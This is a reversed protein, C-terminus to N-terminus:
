SKHETRKVFIILTELSEPCGVYTGKTKHNAATFQHFQIVTLRRYIFPMVDVECQVFCFLISSLSYEKYKLRTEHLHLNLETIFQRDAQFMIRYIYLFICESNRYRIFMNFSIGVILQTCVFNNAFFVYSEQRSFVQEMDYAFM